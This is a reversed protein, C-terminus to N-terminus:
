TGGRIAEQESTEGTQWKASVAFGSLPTETTAGTGGRPYADWHQFISLYKVAPIDDRRPSLRFCSVNIRVNKVQNLAPENQALNHDGRPSLAAM